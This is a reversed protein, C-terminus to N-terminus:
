KFIREFTVAGRTVGDAGMVCEECIALKVIGSFPHSVVFLESVQASKLDGLYVSVHTRELCWGKAVDCHISRVHVVALQFRQFVHHIKIRASPVGIGVQVLSYRSDCKRASVPAVKNLKQLRECAFDWGTHTRRSPILKYAVEGGTGNRSDVRKPEL